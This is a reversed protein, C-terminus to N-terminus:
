KGAAKGPLFLFLAKGFSQILYLVTVAFIGDFAAVQIGLFCRGKPPTGLPAFSGRVAEYKRRMDTRGPRPVWPNRVENPIVHKRGIPHPSPIVRKGRLLALVSFTSGLSPGTGLGPLVLGDPIGRRKVGRFSM